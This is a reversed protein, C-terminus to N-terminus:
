TKEREFFYGKSSKRRGSIVASVGTFGSRRADAMSEFHIREGTKIHTGVVPCSLKSSTGKKAESIKKRHEETFKMGKRAESIKKRHEESLSHGRRVKDSKKLSMRIKEGFEKPMKKGYNPHNEGKTSESMKRRTEDSLKKGKNARSLKECHEKTRKKGKNAESIKKKTEESITGGKNWAKNGRNADGIKKKLEESYVKNKNGGGIMNYGKKRNMTDYLAILACEYYDLDDLGCYLLIKFEFNDWGYKDVSNSIYDNTFKLGNYRRHRDKLHCSQGIYKKNNVLNTICYIGSRM